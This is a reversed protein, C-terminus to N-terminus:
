MPSVALGSPVRILYCRDHRWGRDATLSCLNFVSRWHEHLSPHLIRSRSSLQCMPFILSAILMCLPFGDKILSM